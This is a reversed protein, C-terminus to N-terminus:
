FRRNELPGHLLHVETLAMMCRAARAPLADIIEM